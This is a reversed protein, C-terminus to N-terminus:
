RIRRVDDSRLSMIPSESGGLADTEAELEAHMDDDAIEALELADASARQRDVGMQRGAGEVQAFAAADQQQATDPQNWFDAESAEAELEDILTKKGAIDIRAM